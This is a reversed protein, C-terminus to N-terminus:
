ATRFRAAMVAARSDVGVKRYVETLHAENTRLSCALRGAITKNAEGAVVLALVQRSTTTASARACWCSSDHLENEGRLAGALEAV